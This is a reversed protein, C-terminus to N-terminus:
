YALHVYNWIDEYDKKFLKSIVILSSDNIYFIEESGNCSFQSLEIKKLRKCSSVYIFDNQEAFLRASKETLSSTQIYFKNMSKIIYCHHKM